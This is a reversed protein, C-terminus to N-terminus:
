RGKRDRRNPRIQDDAVRGALARSVRQLITFGRESLRDIQAALFEANAAEEDPEYMTAFSVGFVDAVKEVTRAEANGHMETSSITKRLVGARQALEEQSFGMKRRFQATNRALATQVAGAGPSAAEPRRVMSTALM